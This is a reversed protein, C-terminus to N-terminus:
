AEASEVFFSFILKSGVSSQLKNESLSTIGQLSIPISSTDNIEVNARM